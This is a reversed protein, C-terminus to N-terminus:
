TILCILLLCVINSTNKTIPFEDNRPLQDFINIFESFFLFIIKFDRMRSVFCREVSASLLVSALFIRSTLCFKGFFLSKNAHVEPLPPLFVTLHLSFCRYWFFGVRYPLVIQTAIKCGKHAFFKLDSVM